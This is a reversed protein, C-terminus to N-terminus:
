KNLKEMMEEVEAAGKQYFQEEEPHLEKLLRMFEGAHELEEEAIDRLVMKALENDISQALQMYLQVAEYEAAIDYRIARILEEHTLKRDANMGSFNTAFEPM